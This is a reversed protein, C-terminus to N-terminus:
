LSDSNQINDKHRAVMSRIQLLPKLPIQHSYCLIRAGERVQLFKESAMSPHDISPEQIPYVTHSQHEM